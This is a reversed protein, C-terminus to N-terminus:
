KDFFYSLIKKCVAELVGVDTSLMCSV